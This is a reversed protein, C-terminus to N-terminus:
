PSAPTPPLAPDDEVRQRGTFNPAIFVARAVTSFETERSGQGSQGGVRVVLFGRGVQKTLNPEEVGGHDHHAADDTGADEDVGVDDRLLHVRRQQNKSHPDRAADNRHQACEDIRLQRRSARGDAALIRIQALRKM